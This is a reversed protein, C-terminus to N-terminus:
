SIVRLFAGRRKSEARLRTLEGYRGLLAPIFKLPYLSANKVAMCLLECPEAIYRFALCNCPNSLKAVTATCKLKMRAEKSLIREARDHVAKAAPVVGVKYGFYRARHIWNDDEGYQKFAPSFGGVAEIAERSVLWHAAMVFRVEVVGDIFYGVAKKCKKGFRRDIKGKADNQIPSLIGYEPSATALLKDVTDAELWADQNLLYAFDYKGDLAKRLGINNAAGFGLNSGPQVLQMEPFHEAIYEATGDTSGNDIVVADLGAARVSGLCREVWRMGNYTVIIALVKAM